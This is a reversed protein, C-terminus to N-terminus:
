IGKLFYIGETETASIEDVIEDEMDEKDVAIGCLALIGSINFFFGFVISSNHEDITLGLIISTISGGLFSHDSTIMRGLIAPFFKQKSPDTVVSTITM